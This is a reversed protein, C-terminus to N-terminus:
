FYAGVGAGVRLSPTWSVGRGGSRDAVSLAYVPVSVDGRLLLRTAFPLELLVTPGLSPAWVTRDDSEVVRQHFLSLGVEAGGSLTALGFDWARLGALALRAEDTVAPTIAVSSARSAVARLEVSGASADLRAAVAVGLAPGLEALSSRVSGGGSVATSWRRNGAGKRIARGFAVSSQSVSSMAVREGPPVEITASYLADRERRLVEFRGPDLAMEANGASLFEGVLRGHHDRVFYLGPRDFVLRSSHSNLSRPYTLVVDREGSLDYRFTPHQPGATTGVTASLTRESAYEFAESLTVAGDHNVDALGRLGAEVHHTFFSGQIVDSEQALEGDSASTLIALGKPMAGNTSVDFTVGPRGGKTRTLVGSQCADVIAVRVAVPLAMLRQKLETLPLIGGDLRLAQADAHGSYYFIVLHEGPTARLKPTLDSFAQRVADPGQGKLLSVNKTAVGALSVLLRSVREADTKAHQLREDDSLGDDSGVIIAARLACAPAAWLLLFIGLLWALARRYVRLKVPAGEQRYRLIGGRV